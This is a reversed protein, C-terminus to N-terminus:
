GRPLASQAQSNHPHATVSSVENITSELPTAALRQLKQCDQARELRDRRSLYGMVSFGFIFLLCPGLIGIMEDM